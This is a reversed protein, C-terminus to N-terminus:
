LNQFYEVAGQLNPYTKVVGSLKTIKFLNLVKESPSAVLLEGGAHCVSAWDRMLAGLGVSGMWEVEKLNVIIKTIGQHVFKNVSEHMDDTEPSGILKGKIHIFGVNNEINSEIKMDLSRRKKVM